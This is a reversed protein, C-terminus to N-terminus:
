NNKCHPGIVILPNGNSYCYLYMNGIKRRNNQSEKDFITTKEKKDDVNILTDNENEKHPKDKYEHPIM